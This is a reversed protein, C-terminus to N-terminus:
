ESVTIIHDPNVLIEHGVISDKMGPEYHNTTTVQFLEGRAKAATHSAGVVMLSEQVVILGVDILQLKAM